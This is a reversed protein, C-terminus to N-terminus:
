EEHTTLDYNESWTDWVLETVHLSLWTAMNYNSSVAIEFTYDWGNKSITKWTIANDLYKAWDSVKPDTNPFETTAWLERSGFYWEFDKDNAKVQAKIKTLVIDNATDNNKITVEFVWAKVKEPTIVPSQVSTKYPDTVATFTDIVAAEWWSVKNTDEGNIVPSMIFTKGLTTFSKTTVVLKVNM